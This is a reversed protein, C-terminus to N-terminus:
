DVIEFGLKQLKEKFGRINGDAVMPEFDEKSHLTFATGLCWIKFVTKAASLTPVSGAWCLFYRGTHPNQHYHLTMGDVKEGWIPTLLEMEYHTGQPISGPACEKTYFGPELLRQQDSLTVLAQCTFDRIGQPTAVKVTLRRADEERTLLDGPQPKHPVIAVEIEEFSCEDGLRLRAPDALERTPAKYFWIEGFIYQQTQPVARRVFGMQTLWTEAAERSEFAGLQLWESPRHAITVRAKFSHKLGDVVFITFM